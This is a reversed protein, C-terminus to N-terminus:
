HRVADILTKYKAYPNKDKQNKNNTNQPYRYIFDEDVLFICGDIQHMANFRQLCSYDAPM